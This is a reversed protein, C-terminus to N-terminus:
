TPSVMNQPINGVNIWHETPNLINQPTNRVNLNFTPFIGCIHKTGCFVAIATFLTIYNPWKIPFNANM